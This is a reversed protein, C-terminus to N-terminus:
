QPGPAKSPAPSEWCPVLCVYCSEEPVYSLVPDRFSFAGNWVVGGRNAGLRLFVLPVESSPDSRSSPWLLKLGGLQLRPLVTPSTYQLFHRWVQWSFTRPCFAARERIFSFFSAQLFFFILPPLPVRRQAWNGAGWSLSVEPDERSWLDSPLATTEAPEEPSHVLLRQWLSTSFTLFLLWLWLYSGTVPRQSGEAPSRWFFIWGLGHRELVCSALSPGCPSDWLLPCCHYWNNRGEDLSSTM